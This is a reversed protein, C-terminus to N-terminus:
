TPRRGATGDHQLSDLARALRALGERVMPTDGGVGIRFRDPAGFFRGPVISTQHDRRLREAFADVSGTRLRPFVTTGWRTPVADLDDRSALFSQLLPRNAALLARARAEFGALHDLAIVSLRDVVHPANVGFLDNLRRIERVLGPDALIWGCRLGSLGYAKTLSSTVVFEPGLHFASPPADGFMMGLYVEDVLVRCGAARAVAQVGRLRDHGTFVSTPNHLNTLVVVRTRPTIRSRIAEPDLAFGDEARRPVDVVTAGRYRAVAAMLTYSPTEVIAEDGPELLAVLALHNAMSTGGSVAVVNEPAVGAHAALAEVLPPHGYGAPGTLALDDVRFPIDALSADPMGSTALNFRATSQLKAWALYEADGAWVTV